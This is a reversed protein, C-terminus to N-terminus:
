DHADGATAPWHADTGLAELFTRFDGLVRGSLQVRTGLPDPLFEVKLHDGSGPRSFLSFIGGLRITNNYPEGDIITAGSSFRCCGPAEAYLVLGDGRHLDFALDRVFMAQAQEPAVNMTFSRRVRAM